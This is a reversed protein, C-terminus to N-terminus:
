KSSRTQASTKIWLRVAQADAGLRDAIQSVSLGKRHLNRAQIKRGYYVKMRCANSCSSRSSRKGASERSILMWTKCALCQRYQKNGNVAQTRCSSCRWVM